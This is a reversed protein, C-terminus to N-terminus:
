YNNTMSPYGLGMLYGPTDRPIDILDWIKSLKFGPINNAPKSTVDRITLHRNNRTQLQNDIVAQTVLAQQERTKNINTPSDNL